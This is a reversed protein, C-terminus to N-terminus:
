GNQLGQAVGSNVGAHVLKDLQSGVDSFADLYLHGYLDLTIAISTHGEAGALAEPARRGRDDAGRLHPPPRPLSAARTERPPRCAPLCPAHDHRRLLRGVSNPFVLGLENPERALLLERLLRVAEASLQVRRQGARTKTPVLKGDAASAEVLLTRGAVDISRDRLAFLEGQRLGTLCAFRILNGYPDETECALWEVERWSLFRREAETARPPKLRLIAADVVQGREGADRLVQKAVRLVLQARRPTSRALATVQREVDAATIAEILRNDLHELHALSAKVSAVSAPRSRREYAALWTGKFEGFTQPREVYAAGLLARRNLEDRLAEADKKRTGVTKWRYRGDPLPQKVSWKDGRKVICARKRM